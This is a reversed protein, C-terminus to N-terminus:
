RNKADVPQGLEYSHTLILHQMRAIQGVFMLNDVATYSYYEENGPLTGVIAVNRLDGSRAKELAEELIKVAMPDPAATAPTLQITTM